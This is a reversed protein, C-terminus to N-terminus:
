RSLPRVHSESTEVHDDYGVILLDCLGLFLGTEFVGVMSHLTKELAAPDDISAFRCDIIRNGGDTQYPTGDPRLRLSTSTAVERLRREVHRTGISSVEVPLAFHEGLRSVKKDATVVTVRFKASSVVIKERLLAGGRGKIMRYAPDIEDAGDLNIDLADVDDLDRLPIRLTHALEATSVSTPVGVIKLGEQAVREGIAKVVLVSTSGTGLGVAMGQEVLAAAAKAAQLKGTTTDNAGDSM